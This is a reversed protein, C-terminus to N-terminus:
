STIPRPTTSSTTSETHPTSSHRPAPQNKNPIEFASSASAPHVAGNKETCKKFFNSTTQSAANLLDFRSEHRESSLYKKTAQLQLNAFTISASAFSFGYPIVAKFNNLYDLYGAKKEVLAVTYFAWATIITIFLNHLTAGFIKSNVGQQTILDITWFWYKPSRMSHFSFFYTSILTAVLGFIISGPNTYNESKGITTLPILQIVHLFWLLIELGIVAQPIYVFTVCIATCLASIIGLIQSCIDVTHSLPIYFYDHLFNENDEILKAELASYRMAFFTGYSIIFGIAGAIPHIFQMGLYGLAGTIFSTLGVSIVLITERWLLLKGTYEPRQCDEIWSIGHRRLFQKCDHYLPDWYYQRRKKFYKGLSSSTNNFYGFNIRSLAYFFLAASIGAFCLMAPHNKLLRHEFQLRHKSELIKDGNPLLGFMTLMTMPVACIGSKLILYTTPKAKPSNEADNGNVNDTKPEALEVDTM